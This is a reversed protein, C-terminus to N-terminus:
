FGLTVGATITRAQPTPLYPAGFAINARNNRDTGNTADAYRVVEPDWGPYKTWTLLNLGTVFVRLRDIHMRDTISKPLSYGLQVQRVRLYSADYLYRTTNYNDPNAPNLTLKPVDTQQGERTWREKTKAAQNWQDIRNGFQYKGGDDYITNGYSFVLLVDLDFGGYTFRNSFGGSFKPYPSGSPVRDTRQQEATLRTAATLYVVSDRKGTTKRTVYIGELGTAPDVGAWQYLYSVGIPQGEIV